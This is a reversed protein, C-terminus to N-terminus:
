LTGISNRIAFWEAAHEANAFEGGQYPVGLTFHVIAADKRPQYYGVLHNWTNPLEGIENDRLWKFQHLNYYDATNVYEPTLAKCKVNNFLMVSSWNFRPYTPIAKGRFSHKGTFEPHKVVMVAYKDDRLAWLKAIDERLIMDHGDMFLAWGKYGCLAPVIFRSYSFDTLQGPARERTFAGKISALRLPTISVPLSSKSIISQVCVHYGIPDKEDYGLFIHVCMDDGYKGPSKEVFGKNALITVIMGLVITCFVVSYITRTLRHKM